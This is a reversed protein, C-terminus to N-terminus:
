RRLEVKPTPDESADNWMPQAQAVWGQTDAADLLEVRHWRANFSVRFPPCRSYPHPNFPLASLPGSCKLLGTKSDIHASAARVKPLRNFM